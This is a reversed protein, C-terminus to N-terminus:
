QVMLIETITANINAGGAFGFWQQQVLTGYDRFTMCWPIGQQPIGYGQPQGGFPNISVMMTAGAAASVPCGIILAWRLPNANCLISGPALTDLVITTEKVDWQGLFQQLQSALRDSM